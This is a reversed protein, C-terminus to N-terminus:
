AILIINKHDFPLPKITNKLFEDNMESPRKRKEENFLYFNTRVCGHKM